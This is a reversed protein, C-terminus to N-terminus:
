GAGHQEDSKCSSVSPRLGIFHDLAAQTAGGDLQSYSWRMIMAANLTLGTATGM